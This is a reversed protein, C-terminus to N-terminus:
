DARVADAPNLSAAHRAPWLSALVSVGIGFALSLAVASGELRTYLISSIAADGAQQAIRSGLDIGDKEFYLVLASGLAAGVLGSGAGMLGGEMLFLARVERTKMGLALLTGIERVREYVSMIVTNAIGTGGIAMVIFVLLGLARRRIDNLALLDAVEQRTTRGYWGKGELAAPVSEDADKLTVAVYTLHGDLTLLTSAADMPVWVMSNDLGAHDTTVIGTVVFQLANQAGDRTRAQLVVPDGPKLDLLRAFGSGAVIGPEAAGPEPWAGEIKWRDRPFVEPDRVPDYAQGIVRTADAGKVLRGTFAVRGTWAGAGDLAARLDPSVPRAKDLPLDLGDDPYGDPRLLVDATVTTRAARLANEDLGAVLGWGVISVAVGFVVAVSTILTRRVNRALNRAALALVLTV